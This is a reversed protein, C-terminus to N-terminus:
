HKFPWGRLIKALNEDCHGMDRFALRILPRRRFKGQPTFM